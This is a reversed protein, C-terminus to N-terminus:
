PNTQAPHMPCNGAYGRGAMRALMWDAQQQTLYGDAVAKDMATKRADAFVQAFEESSLGQAAAIQAPTEGAAIRADLEERTLDLGAALADQMTDHMPGYAGSARVGRMMMGRGYGAGGGMMGPGYGNGGMMGPGYGPGYGPAPPTPNQAYASGAVTLSLLSLAVLALGAIIILKKNMTKEM